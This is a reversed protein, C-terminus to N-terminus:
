DSIGGFLDELDGGASSEAGDEKEVRAEEAPTQLGELQRAAGLALDEFAATGGVRPSGPPSILVWSGGDGAANMPVSSDVQLFDAVAKLLHPNGLALATISRLREAAEVMEWGREMCMWVLCMCGSRNKGMQCNVNVVAGADRLRRLVAMAEAFQPLWDAIAEDSRNDDFIDEMPIDVTEPGGESFKGVAERAMNLRHTIGCARLQEADNATEFDSWWLGLTGPSGDGPLVERSVRSKAGRGSAAAGALTSKFAPGGRKPADGLAEGLARMVAGTYKWGADADKRVEPCESGIICRRMNQRAAGPEAKAEASQEPSLTQLWAAAVEDPAAGARFLSLWEPDEPADAAMAAALLVM